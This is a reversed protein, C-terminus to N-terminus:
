KESYFIHLKKGIIATAKVLTNLTVSTNDPDLLRDLAARSTRLKDAMQTKSIHRKQMAKKLEYSIVRKIAVAEADELLGEEELFDDLMTGKFKNNAKMKEEIKM